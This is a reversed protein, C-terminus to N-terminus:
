DDGADLYAWPFNTSEGFRDPTQKYRRGENLSLHDPVRWAAYSFAEDLTIIRDDIWQAINHAMERSLDTTGDSVRITIDGNIESIPIRNGQSDVVLRAGDAGYELFAGIESEAALLFHTFLSQELNPDEYSKENGHSSFFLRTDDAKLIDSERLLRTDSHIGGSAKSFLIKPTRGKEEAIVTPGSYCADFIAVKLKATIASLRQLVETRSLMQADFEKVSDAMVFYYRDPFYKHESYFGHGSFFFFLTDSPKIDLGMLGIATEVSEASYQRRDEDTIKAVDIDEIDMRRVMEVINEEPVNIHDILHDSVSKVDDGSFRLRNFNTYEEPGVLIAYVDDSSVQVEVSLSRCRGTDDIAVIELDNIRRQLTLSTPSDDTVSTPIEVEITGGADDQVLAAPDAVSWAIEGSRYVHLTSLKSAGIVLELQDGRASVIGLNRKLEPHAIHISPGNNDCSNDALAGFHVLTSAICLSLSLLCNLTRCTM